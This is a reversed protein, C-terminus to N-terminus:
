LGGNLAMDLHLRREAETGVFLWHYGPKLFYFGPREIIIVQNKTQVWAKVTPVPAAPIYCWKTILSNRRSSSRFHDMIILYLWPIAVGIIFLVGAGAGTAGFINVLVVGIGTGIALVSIWLGLTTLANLLKTLDYPIKLWYPTPSLSTM